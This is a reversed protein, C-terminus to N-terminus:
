FNIKLFQICELQPSDKEQAFLSENILVRENWLFPHKAINHLTWPFTFTKLYILKTYKFNNWTFSRKEKSRYVILLLLSNGLRVLNDCFNGSSRFILSVLFTKPLTSENWDFNGGESEIYRNARNLLSNFSMEIGDTSIINLIATTSKQIDEIDGYLKGNM